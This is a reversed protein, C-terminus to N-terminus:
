RQHVTITSLAVAETQLSCKDNCLWGIRDMLYLLRQSNLSQILCDSKLYNLTEPATIPITQLPLDENCVPATANDVIVTLEGCSYIM